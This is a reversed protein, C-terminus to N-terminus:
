PSGNNFIEGHRLEEMFEKRNNIEREVYEVLVYEHVNIIIM